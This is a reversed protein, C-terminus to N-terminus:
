PAAGATRYFMGDRTVAYLTGDPGIGLKMTATGPLGQSFSQWSQGDDRSIFVGGTGSSTSICAYLSGSRNFIIDRVTSYATIGNSSTMWTGGTFRQIGTSGSNRTVLLDGLRNFTIALLNDKYGDATSLGFQQWTSGNDTSRYIGTPVEGGTYLDGNAGAEVTWLAGAPVGANGGVHTAVRTFAAGNDTSRWVDADYATVAILAGTRDLAFHTVKHTATIGTSRTWVGGSLRYAGFNKGGGSSDAGVGAVVEGMSNLGLSGVLPSPLTASITNWSDGRDTSKALGSPRSVYIEGTATVLLAVLDGSTAGPFPDTAHVWTSSTGGDPLGV